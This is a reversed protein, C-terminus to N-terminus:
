AVTELRRMTPREAPRPHPVSGRHPTGLRGSRRPAPEGPEDLVMREAPPMSWGRQGMYRHYARQDQWVAHHPGLLEVPAVVESPLVM